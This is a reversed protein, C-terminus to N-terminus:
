GDQIEFHSVIKKWNEYKETSVFMIKTDLDMKPPILFRSTDVSMKGIFYLKQPNCYAQADSQIQVKLFTVSTKLKLTPNYFM